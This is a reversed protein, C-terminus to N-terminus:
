PWAPDNATLAARHDDPQASAAQPEVNVPKASRHCGKPATWEANSGGGGPPPDGPARAAAAEGAIGLTSRVVRGRRVSNTTTGREASSCADSSASPRASTATTPLVRGWTDIAM